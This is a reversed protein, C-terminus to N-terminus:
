ATLLAVGAVAMGVAFWQTRSVSEKLFIRALLVSVVPYLATLTIIVSAPGVALASFCCLVAVVTIMSAFGTIAIAKGEGMMRARFYLMLPLTVIMNGLAEYFIVDAPPMGKMAIKPLFGWIGWCCMAGLAPLIWLQRTKLPSM